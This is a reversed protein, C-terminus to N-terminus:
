VREGGDILREARGEPRREAVKLRLRRGVVHESDRPNKLIASLFFFMSVPLQTSFFIRNVSLHQFHRFIHLVWSLGPTTGLVM